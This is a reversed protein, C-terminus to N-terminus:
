RVSAVTQKEKNWRSSNRYVITYCAGYLMSAVLYWRESYFALKPDPFFFFHLLSNDNNRLKCVITLYAFRELFSFTEGLFCDLHFWM